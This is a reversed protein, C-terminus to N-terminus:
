EARYFFVGCLSNSYLWAEERGSAISPIQRVALSLHRGAVGARRECPARKPRAAGRGGSSCTQSHQNPGARALVFVCQELCRAAAM